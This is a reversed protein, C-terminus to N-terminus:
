SEPEATPRTRTRLGTEPHRPSRGRVSEARAPQETDSIRVVPPQTQPPGAPMPTGAPFPVIVTVSISPRYDSGLSSWLETAMRETFLPGGVRLRV